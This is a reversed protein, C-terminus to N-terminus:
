KDVYPIINLSYREGELLYLDLKIEGNKDFNFGKILNEEPRYKRGKEDVVKEVQIDQLASDTGAKVEINFKELPVGKKILLKHAFRGNSDKYAYTRFLCNTLVIRDGNAVEGGEGDKKGKKKKRKTLPNKGGPTGSTPLTKNVKIRKFVPLDQKDLKKAKEISSEDKTMEEERGINGLGLDEKSAFYEELGPITQSQTFERSLEKFCNSIFSKLETEVIETKKYFETDSANEKKWQNHQQNEMKRLIFSGEPNLCSFVGAFGKFFPEPKKQIIMGTNRFYIIKKRFASDFSLSLKIKKLNPLDSEFVKSGTKGTYAFFYPLPNPRSETDPPDYLSFHKSLYGDYLNNKNIHNEGIKVELIGEYIAPWFNDLISILIEKEWGINGNYDLIYFDTGQQKRRFLKPVEELVRIPKQGEFGFSGYGQKVVKDEHSPLFSKGQFVVKNENDFVSSFLITRFNSAAYYSGKGLGWSGGGAGESTSYGVSKAFKWYSGNKDEDDGFLGTTNFDSIKLIPIVANNEIKTIAKSLFKVCDTVGRNFERCKKLIESFEEINPIQSSKIHLLEYSVVAPNNNPLKNDIINQIPERALFYYPKGKFNSVTPDNFGTAPGGGTPAFEWQLKM